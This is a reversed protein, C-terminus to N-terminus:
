QNKEEAELNFKDLPTDCIAELAYNITLDVEKQLNRAEM